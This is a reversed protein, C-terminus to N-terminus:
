VHARGIQLSVGVARDHGPDEGHQEITSGQLLKEAELAEHFGQGEVEGTYCTTVWFDLDLKRYSVGVGPEWGNGKVYMERFGCREALAGARPNNTPVKTVIEICDTHFFMYELMEKARETPRSTKPLMVTHVEYRGFGQGLLIFGGREDGFFVNAPNGLWVDVDIVGKGGLWPRILPHNAAAAFATDKYIRKGM